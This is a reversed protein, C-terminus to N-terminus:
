LAFPLADILDGQDISLTEMAAINQEIVRGNAHVIIAPNPFASLMQRIKPGALDTSMNESAAELAEKADEEFSADLVPSSEFCDNWAKLFADFAFPDAANDRLLDKLSRQPSSGNM